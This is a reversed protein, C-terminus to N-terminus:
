HNSSELVAKRAELARLTANLLALMREREPADGPWGHHHRTQAIAHRVDTIRRELRAREQAEELM